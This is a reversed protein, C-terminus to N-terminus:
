FCLNEQTETSFRLVQTVDAEAGIQGAMLHPSLSLIGQRQRFDFDTAWRM